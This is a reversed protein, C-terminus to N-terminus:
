GLCSSFQHGTSIIQLSLVLATTIRLQVTSMRNSSSRLIPAIRRLHQYRLSPPFLYLLTTSFTIFCAITLIRPEDLSVMLGLKISPCFILVRDGLSRFLRVRWAHAIRVPQEGCKVERRSGFWQYNCGCALVALHDPYLRFYSNIFDQEGWTAVRGVTQYHHVVSHIYRDIFDEDRMRELELLVVGGNMQVPELDGEEACAEPSADWPVRSAINGCKLGPTVRWHLGMPWCLNPRLQCSDGMDLAMSILTSPSSPRSYCESIDSLISADSDIYLVRPVDTIIEALFFKCHASTHIGPHSFPKVHRVLNTCLNHNYIHVVFPADAYLAFLEDHMSPPCVLHFHITRSKIYHLASTIVQQAYDLRNEDFILAISFTTLPDIVVPKIEKWETRNPNLGVTPPPADLLMQAMADAKSRKALTSWADSTRTLVLVLDLEVHDCEDTELPSSILDITSGPVLSLEHQFTERGQEITRRVLLTEWEKKADRKFRLKLETGDGCQHKASYSLRLTVDAKRPSTFTRVAAFAAGKKSVYPHQTADTIYASSKEDAMNWQADTAVAETSASDLSAMEDVPEFSYSWGNWGQIPEFDVRSDAFPREVFDHTASSKAFMLSHTLELEQVRPDNLLPLLARYSSDWEDM